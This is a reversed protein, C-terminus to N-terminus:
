RISNMADMVQKARQTDGSAAYIQAMLQYAPKFNGRMQLLQNLSRLAANPNNERAYVNAEIWLGSIDRSNIKTMAKAMLMANSLDGRNLYLNALHNMASANGKNFGIWRKALLLASDAMGTQEYISILDDLAQENEPDYALAKQLQAKAEGANGERLAQHGYFDSWDERKLVIGIPVGDVKVAYATNKPPFSKANRLMEPNIGTVAFVAYDWNGYGRENWRVFGVSFDATDHRFFYQVSAAHWSVVRTKRTSDPAGNQEVDRKIWESLERSSHYYYDMEYHGFAGKTSGVFRNFYAYEYPHNQVIFIIPHLLLVLPLATLAIKVYRNKALDVIANFGLGAAVALMPYAFLSHRWGGYVNANSYVIWFIPFIFAIYVIFTTFLNEKKLGGAFLYTLMGVIVAIPVTTLIYKPTYYWPLEDSWQMRGEFLQRLVVPFKSMQAFAEMPNKIPQQLAYPWLILGLFYGAVCIIIGYFLLRRFCFNTATLYQKKNKTAGKAALYEKILFLLSFIGFFGFLILGGIRVSISLAIAVVLWAMTGIKVKPFQRFFMLMFYLAMIVSAAFPIDKPNNFSHGLFRPSVVLLVMALLGARWGAIRAAILGAFLVCLWGFLANFIHRTTHINDIGFTQNVFAAIVDFSAGYYKLNKFTFCSTDKGLTRYWNVVHNGQPIQFGDEDGSNGASLSLLPMTLLLIAAVAIFANQYSLYKKM